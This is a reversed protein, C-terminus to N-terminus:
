APAGDVRRRRALLVLGAGLAVAALGARVLPLTEAGTNAFVGGTAPQAPPRADTGSQVQPASSDVPAPSLNQGDGAGDLGPDPTGPLDVPVVTPEVPAAYPDTEPEVEPAEGYSPPPVYDPQTTPPTGRNAEAPAAVLVALSAAVVGSLLV